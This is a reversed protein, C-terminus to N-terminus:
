RKRGWLRHMEPTTVDAFGRVVWEHAHDFYEMLDETASSSPKGKASLQLQLIEKADRNRVGPQLTVALTGDKAMPYTAQLTVHKAKALLTNSEGNRWVTLMRGVDAFEQWERGRELHNIYTVECEVVEPGAIKEGHLFRIFRSWEKEFTPRISDEYRPYAEMGSVKRWNHVFRTDQLQLLRTEPEDVFWGRLAPAGVIQIMPTRADLDSKSALSPHVSYKPYDSRVVRWFLGLHPIGFGPLPAFEVGLLAEIIPPSEFDPLAATPRSMSGRSPKERRGYGAHLSYYRYCSVALSTIERSEAEGLNGPLGLVPPM